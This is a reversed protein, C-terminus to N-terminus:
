EGYLDSLRSSERFHFMARKYNRQQLYLEGLRSHLSPDDPNRSVMEQAESLTAAPGLLRSAQASSEKLAFNCILSLGVALALFVPLNTNNRLISPPRSEGRFLRCILRVLFGLVKHTPAPPPLDRVDADPFVPESVRGELTAPRNSSAEMNMDNAM